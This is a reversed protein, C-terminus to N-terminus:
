GKTASVPDHVTGSTRETVRGRVFWVMVLGAVIIIFSFSGAVTLLANQTGNSGVEDIGGTSLLVFPDTLGHLVIAPIISRTVRMTLYMCVGFGFTYAM